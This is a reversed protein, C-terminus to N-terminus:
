GPAVFVPASSWIPSWRSLYRFRRVRAAVAVLVFFVIGMLQGFAVNGFAYPLTVFMLGPGESPNLGAAFVILFLALGALLSVFTDLLAIGVVTSSISAGKTMYAGYVM